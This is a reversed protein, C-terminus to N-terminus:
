SKTYRQPPQGKPQNARSDKMATVISDLLDRTSFPKRLVCFDGVDRVASDVDPDESATIFVAPMHVRDLQLRQQVQVGTMGPLHVDLLACDPQSREFAALFEEGTAYTVVEFGALKLVRALAVRVTEEDDVLAIRTGM